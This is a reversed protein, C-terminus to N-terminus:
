KDGDGKGWRNLALYQGRRENAIKIAHQQDKAYVHSVMYKPAGQDNWVTSHFSDRPTESHFGYSSDEHECSMVDGNQRMSVRFPLYGQSLADKHVDLEWEEIDMETYEHRKFSDIFKQALEETSFMGDIHYDSYEGSTVVYVKGM